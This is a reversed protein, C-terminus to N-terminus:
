SIFYIYAAYSLLLLLAQWRPVAKTRYAAVWWVMMLVSYIMVAMDFPGVGAAQLPTITSCLGLILLINFLNSGIINGLAMENNGKVAATISVTLEPLSTGGALLTIAIFSESVNLMRAIEVAENVFLRAGVILFALGFIISGFSKWWSTQEKVAAGQEGGNEQGTKFSYWLFLGFLMLVVIGEVRSLEGGREISFGFVLLYFLISIALCILVDIMLGKKTLRVPKILMTTGLILLVNFINSGVINGIAVDGSGGIAGFMSVLMEPMSTGVGVIVMGIVFESIHMRRAVASAGNVLFTAGSVAGILGLVALLIMIAM